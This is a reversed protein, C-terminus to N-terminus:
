LATHFTNPAYVIYSFITAHCYSKTIYCHLLPILNGRYLLGNKLTLYSIFIHKCFCFSPCFVVKLYFVTKCILIVKLFLCQWQM